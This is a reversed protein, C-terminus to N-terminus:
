AKELIQKNCFGLILEVYKTTENANDSGTVDPLAVIIDAYLSPNGEIRQAELIHGLGANYSAMALCYRDVDPRPWSWEDILWAMYLAATHISAEADTRDYLDLAFGAKPGFAQWTDPMLQGIGVAGVPSVADPKLRSEQWLQAKFLRWDYGFPLHEEVADQIMTDYDTIM